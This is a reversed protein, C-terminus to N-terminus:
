ARWNSARGADPSASIHEDRRPAVMGAADIQGKGVCGSTEDDVINVACYELCHTAPVAAFADISLLM